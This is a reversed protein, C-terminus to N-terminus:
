LIEQSFKLMKTVFAWNNKYSNESYAAKLNNFHFQFIHIRQKNSVPGGMADTNNAMNSSGKSINALDM